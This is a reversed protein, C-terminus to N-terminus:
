FPLSRGCARGAFPWRYPRYPLQQPLGSGPASALASALLIGCLFALSAWVLPM